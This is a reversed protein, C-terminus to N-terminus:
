AYEFLHDGLDSACCGVALDFDQDGIEFTLKFREFANYFGSGVNEVVVDFGGPSDESFNAWAPFVIYRQFEQLPYFFNVREHGRFRSHHDAEALSFRFDEFGHGVQSFYSSIEQGDTLVQSRGVPVVRDNAEVSGFLKFLDFLGSQFHAELM